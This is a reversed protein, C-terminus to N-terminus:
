IGGFYPMYGTTPSLSALVLWSADIPQGASGNKPKPPMAENIDPLSGLQLRLKAAALRKRGNSDRQRSAPSLRHCHRCALHGYRLFLRRAGCHCQNCVFIPRGHGFYTRVWHLGVRQNYGSVHNFEINQQSIILSKLFPYKFTMKLIHSKDWIDPFVKWRCLDHIDIYRTLEILPRPESKHRRDARALQPPMM